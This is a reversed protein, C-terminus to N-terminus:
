TLNTFIAYDILGTAEGKAFSNKKTKYHVGGFLNKTAPSFVIGYYPDLFIFNAGSAGLCVVFHGYGTNWAVRCIAPKGASCTKLKEYIPWSDTANLAPWKKQLADLLVWGITGDSSWEHWRQDSRTASTGCRGMEMKGCMIQIFGIAVDRNMAYKLLM